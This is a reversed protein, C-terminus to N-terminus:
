YVKQLNEVHERKTKKNLIDDINNIINEYVSIPYEQVLVNDVLCRKVGKNYDVNDHLIETDCDKLFNDKTDQYIKDNSQIIVINDKILLLEQM